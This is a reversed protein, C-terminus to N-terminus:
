ARKLLIGECSGGNCTLEVGIGLIGRAAVDDGSTWLCNGYKQDCWLVSAATFRNM